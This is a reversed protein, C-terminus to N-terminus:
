SSAAKLDFAILYGYSAIRVYSEILADILLTKPHIPRYTGTLVGSELM